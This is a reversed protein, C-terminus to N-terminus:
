FAELLKEMKSGRSGKILLTGKSPINQKLWESAQDSSNFHLYNYKKASEQFFKGVLIVISPNISSIIETIKEHEMLSTEGLELMEGLAIFKTGSFANKLNLLAAEMSSPNANYADIIIELEGKKILQSRQNGPIYNQIAEKIMEESVGFYSGIAVAVMVNDFNYTGTLQTKIISEFPHKIKVQLYHDNPIIEGTYDFELSSGYSICNNYSNLLDLEAVHNKQIFILGNHKQLFQYMEGKGKKVGEVGGFGELHAKGINTIMGFTPEAIECLEAIEKQHNAGMEIVVFEDNSKISLLTLPVGIHNNLNGQTFCTKYKKSLVAAILEKSTTKGNSGTIGLVPIKLQRRHHNALQQLAKLGDDVLLLRNDTSSQVEDVVAYNAGESLAQVAFNNGNFNEGKLSIFICGNTIKRTDTCITPHSLFLQYLQETSIM